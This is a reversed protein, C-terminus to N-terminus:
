IISPGVTILNSLATGCSNTASVVVDYLTGSVNFSLVGTTPDITVVNPASVAPSISTIAYTLDTGSFYSAFNVNGIGSFTTQDPNLGGLFAARIGNPCTNPEIKEETKTLVQPVYVAPESIWNEFGSNRPAPTNPSKNMCVRGRFVEVYLAGNNMVAQYDTGRVGMTQIETKVQYNAPNQKAIAGTITRFGGTILNGIFSSASPNKNFRYSDVSFTTNEKFTMLSNDSFVVQAQSNSATRLTENQYIPSNKQLARGNASFSGKVWVVNAIASSEAFANFTAFFSLIIFGILNKIM